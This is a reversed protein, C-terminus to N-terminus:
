RRGTRGHAPRRGDGLCCTSPRCGPFGPRAPPRTGPSPSTVPPRLRITLSRRARRDPPEMDGTSGDGQTLSGGTARRQRRASGQAPRTQSRANHECGGTESARPGNISGITRGEIRRRTAMCPWGGGSRQSSGAVAGDRAGGPHAPLSLMAGRPRTHRPPPGSGHRCGQRAPRSRGPM